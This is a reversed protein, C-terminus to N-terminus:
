AANPPRPASLGEAGEGSLAKETGPLPPVPPTLLAWPGAGEGCQPRGPAARLAQHGPHM